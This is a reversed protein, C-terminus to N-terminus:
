YCFNDFYEFPVVHLQENLGVLSVNRVGHRQQRQLVEAEEYM